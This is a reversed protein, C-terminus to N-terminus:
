ARAKPMHLLYWWVLLMGMVLALCGPLLVWNMGGVLARLVLVLAGSLSRALGTLRVLNGVAQQVVMPDTAVSMIVLMVPVILALTALIMGLALLSSRRWIGTLRSKQQVAAMINRQLVPPPVLAPADAFLAEVRSLHAWHNQCAPCRTLHVKLRCEDPEDLLGDLKLSM